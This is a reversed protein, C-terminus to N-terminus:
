PTATSTATPAAPAAAATPELTPEPPLTPEPTPPGPLYTPVVAPTPETTPTVTPEPFRRATFATRQEEVWKDLAETRADRLQAERDPIQRDTVQLIHWGFQSRVPDSVANLELAFTATVVEPPYTAGNDAVGSKDFSGLAGGQNRSGVDDSNASVLAAFDSSTKAQAALDDARTKATAYLADIDAQTAGEPPTVAVLIQRATVQDPEDSAAFGDDAVLQEQIKRNLVQERYQEELALRLEDKTLEPELESAILEVEYRRFIQDIIEPVESAAVSAIPTPLPTESPAPTFTPEPTATRTPTLTPGGPTSTAAVTPTITATAQPSAAVTPTLSTTPTVPSTAPPPLFIQGLDNVMQQNIEDQSVQLGLASAGQLKIQRTQWENIVADDLPSSRIARLQQNIVPSRNQFQGAFQQNGGFLALLQFNQALERGFALRRERWYDGRSLSVAGVQAVPRSPTWVQDYLVGGLVVLLALGIAAGTLTIITRQRRM